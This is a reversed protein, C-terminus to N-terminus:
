IFKFLSKLIKLNNETYPPYKTSVDILISSKLVSKQHSFTDFSKKGHYSGIGSSGIGGFPANTNAIHMITDNICGGGFSIKNIIDIELNKDKTFLYLALPSKHVEIIKLIDNIDDFELIPIIPGFIEEEMVKNDVTINNLITPEIKLNEKNYNGGYAVKKYDILSTIRDFHKQNIISAYDLSELPNGKYFKNIYEIMKDILNNKIDKHAIIYDPAVCTQGANLLKGWVIKKASIDIDANKDVICPSKGGLELTCPTLHKAAASMVIKGVMPSGTFFIYDFNQNLLYKNINIEGEIVAIYEEDFYEEIMNKIIRSTNPALESPKIVSTNGAIISGILPSISLQFPYNWPSMILCIGYPQNYLYTKSAPSSLSSKIKKPKSWKNINKKAHKIESLIVGIETEYSEFEPKNFDNKLAEIIKGEYSNIAVELKNLQKIRFRIDKTSQSKFYQKQKKLIEDINIYDKM